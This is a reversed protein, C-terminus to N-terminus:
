KVNKDKRLKWVWNLKLHQFCHEQYSLYESRFRFLAKWPQGSLRNLLYCVAAAVISQYIPVGGMFIFKDGLCTVLRFYHREERARKPTPFIFSGPSSTPVADSSDDFLHDLSRSMIARPAKILPSIWRVAPLLLWACHQSSFVYLELVFSQLCM